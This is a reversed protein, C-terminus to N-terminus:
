GRLMTLLFQTKIKSKDFIKFAKLFDNQNLVMLMQFVNFQVSVQM